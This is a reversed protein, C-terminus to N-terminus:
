AGPDPLGMPECMHYPQLIPDEPSGPPLSIPSVRKVHLWDGGLVQRGFTLVVAVGIGQWLRPVEVLGLEPVAYNSCTDVRLEDMLRLNLLKFMQM